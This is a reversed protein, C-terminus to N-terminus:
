APRHLTAVMPFKAPRIDLDHLGRGQQLAQARHAVALGDPHAMPVQNGGNRRSEVHDGGRVARGEGGDGILRAPEIAHLKVRLHGVRRATRGQQAVERVPDRAEGTAPGHLGEALLGDGLDTALHALALHDAAKGPADIGGHGRHQQVLGDAILEGADKDVGAQHPFVLGALDDVQKAVGIINGQDM